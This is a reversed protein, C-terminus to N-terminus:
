GGIRAAELGVTVSTRFSGSIRFGITYKRVHILFRIRRPTRRGLLQLVEVTLCAVGDQARVQVDDPPQRQALREPPHGLHGAIGGLPGLLDGATVLLPPHLAKPVTPVSVRAARIPCQQIGWLSLLKPFRELVGSGVPAQPAPRLYRKPYCGFGAPPPMPHPRLPAPLVELLKSVGRL